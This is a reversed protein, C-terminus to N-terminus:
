TACIYELGVNVWPSTPTWTTICVTTKSFFIKLLTRRLGQRPQTEPWIHHSQNFLHHSVVIFDPFSRLYSKPGKKVGFLPKLPKLPCPFPKIATNVCLNCWRKCSLNGDLDNIDSFHNEGTLHCFHVEIAHTGSLFPAEQLGFESYSM